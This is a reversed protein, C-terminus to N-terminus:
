PYRLASVARANVCAVCVSIGKRATSWWRRTWAWATTRSAFTLDRGYTLAIDLRSGRSHTRANRIAEYGIRYLEDRVVPHMARADGTVTLSAAIAGQRQCDEVARRFAEALDSSETTSTRLANVTARGTGLCVLTCASV